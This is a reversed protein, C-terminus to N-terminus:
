LSSSYTIAIGAKQRMFKSFSSAKRKKHAENQLGYTGLFDQLEGLQYLYNLSEVGSLCLYMNSSEPIYGIFKHTEKAKITTDIQDIGGSDSDSDPITFDLFVNITNSNGAGNAGFLCYIEGLQVALNLNHLNKFNSYNKVQLM